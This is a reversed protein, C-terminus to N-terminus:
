STQDGKVTFYLGLLFLVITVVMVTVVWSAGFRSGKLAPELSAFVGVLVAAERM